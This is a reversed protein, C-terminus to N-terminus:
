RRARLVVASLILFFVSWAITVLYGRYVPTWEIGWGRSMIGRMAECAFTQPLFYSLHRLGDPMGELPWMIGSLLLNPYFAGLALQIADQENDCAASIVLGFAMGCVGQLLTLIVIWVIPGEAPVKFVYMMFILVLAAQVAMVVFQATAHALMVETATVGAVWSRDLLGEKKEIIFSLATLGVAMFYIISLIVGPAMFETFTPEDSGYIPEEFVIPISALEDPIKCASLLGKSFAQYAEALRLQIIYGVQQNTMDMYVHIESRDFTDNDPIKLEVMGFMRDYLSNTFNEKFHMAGWHKGLKVSELASDISSFYVPKIIDENVYSLFRCSLNAKHTENYDFNDTFFTDRAGLICGLTSDQCQMTPIDENVVALSMGKPERGIALCFLAVQFTPIIFQFFLFGLNRWMRTFNKLLLASLRHCQLLTCCHDQDNYQSKSTERQNPTVKSVPPISVDTLLADKVDGSYGSLKSKDKTEADRPEHSTEDGICLHLFIDELNSRQYTQLLVDPPAEALLKGFRMMGVVNAQRAEEIYHTTIVITTQLKSSKSIELLHNWICQRLLPDVGVTPEDLILLEPEHLLAAALSARRQQGGSMNMILRKEKPLDLFELLFRTRAIIKEAPMNFITGFYRLTEAVTFEDYLALEQPM